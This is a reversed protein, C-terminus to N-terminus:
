KNKVILTAVTDNGMAAHFNLMTKKSNTVDHFGDGDIDIRKEGLAICGNLQRAYNAAHFKCESRNPVGKIEWLNQKFRPSYELVLEYVGEPICSINRQNDKWGREISESKFLEQCFEGVVVCTGLSQNSLLVDRTLIVEKM